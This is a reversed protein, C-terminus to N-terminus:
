YKEFTEDPHKAKCADCVMGLDDNWWKPRNTNCLDCPEFTDTKPARSIRPLIRKEYVESRIVDISDGAEGLDILPARKLIADVDAPTCTKSDLRMIEYLNNADNVSKIALLDARFHEVIALCFRILYKMGGEMFADLFIFLKDFTLVHICLGSLIKQLYTDPWFNLSLLHEAVDKFKKQMFTEVVWASTAFGVAEAAWHGRIYETAVFRIISGTEEEDLVLLCLGALYSMAQGYADFEHFLANLFAILKERHEPAYFTREADKIIVRVVEEDDDEIKVYQIPKRYFHAKKLWKELRPRLQDRNAELFGNDLNFLPARGLVEKEWFHEMQFLPGTFHTPECYVVPKKEEKKDATVPQAQGFGAAAPAAPKAGFVPAGGAPAASGFSFAPATGSPGGFSFISKKEADAPKQGFEFAGKASKPEASSSAPPKVADAPKQGFGFAPKDTKSEAPSPGSLFPNEADSTKNFGFASKPEGFGFGSPAATAAPKPSEKTAPAPTPASSTKAEAVPTATSEKAAESTPTPTAANPGRSLAAWAEKDTQCKERQKVERAAAYIFRLQENIEETNDLLARKSDFCDDPIRTFSQVFAALAVDYSGFRDMLITATQENLGTIIHLDHATGTMTATSAVSM